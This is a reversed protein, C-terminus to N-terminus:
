KSQMKSQMSFRTVAAYVKELKQKVEPNQKNEGQLVVSNLLQFFEPTFKVSNEKMLIELEADDKSSVLKQILEVEPPPASAKEIVDVVKQLKETRAADDRQKADELATQLVQTFFDDIAELNSETAKTVDEASLITELLHRARKLEEDIKKDIEKTMELLKQRLDMLKRQDEGQSRDIKDTLTQFFSYDMGSRAMGVLTSTYLDSLSKEFLELLKERTLGEKSADQLNKIALQVIEAQAKIEKGVKTNEVLYKQLDALAKASSQDGQAMTVEYLRSLITFFPQDIQSEEQKVIEPRAAATASVLRQLLSLKKQQDDLMEKTIGDAQLITDVMTQFTLMTKPQLLYAKRKENPLHNVVQNILPGILKEQENVPLGMEAPFYTLLLEKEPDHYVVPTAVPGSYGCNRCRITNVSGSLLKQKAQPDTTLDFVQELEVVVPQHCRPCTSQTRAM